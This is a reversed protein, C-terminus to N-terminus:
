RVRATEQKRLWLEFALPELRVEGREFQSRSALQSISEPMYARKKLMTNFILRIIAGSILGKDRVYDNTAQPSFDKRLDIVLATGGVKLVRYMENLAALPQTFNKFAATCLIFGFEGAGFPLSAADGQEFAVPVGAKDANQRAIRVMTRSIDLGVMRCGTRRAIEIALYGPGPAIELVRSDAGIHEALRRALNQWRDTDKATLRAYWAAIPGEMGAGKHGKTPTVAKEIATSM